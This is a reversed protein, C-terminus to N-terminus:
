VTPSSYMQVSGGGGPGVIHGQKRYKAIENGILRRFDNTDCDKNWMSPDLRLHDAVEKM